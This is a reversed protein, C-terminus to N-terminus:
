YLFLFFPGLVAALSLGLLPPPYNSQKSLQLLSMLSYLNKKQEKPLGLLTRYSHCFGSIKLVCEKGPGSLQPM